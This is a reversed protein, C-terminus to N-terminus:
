AHIDSLDPLRITKSPLLDEGTLQGIFGKVRDHDEQRLGSSQYSGYEGGKYYVVAPFTITFPLLGKLMKSDNEFGDIPTTFFNFRGPAVVKLKGACHLFPQYCFWANGDSTDYYFVFSVSEKKIKTRLVDTTPLHIVGDEPDRSASSM